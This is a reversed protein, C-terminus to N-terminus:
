PKDKNEKFVKLKNKYYKVGEPYPIESTLTIFHKLEQEYEKNIPKLSVGLDIIMDVVKDLTTDEYAFTNPDINGNKNYVNFVARALSNKDYTNEFKEILFIKKLTYILDAAETEKESESKISEKKTKKTKKQPKDEDENVENNLVEKLKNEYYNYIREYEEAESKLTEKTKKKKKKNLEVTKKINEIFKNDKLPQPNTIKFIDKNKNKKALKKSKNLTTQLQDINWKKGKNIVHVKNDNSKILKIAPYGQSKSIGNLKTLTKKISIKGDSTIDVMEHPVQVTVTHWLM